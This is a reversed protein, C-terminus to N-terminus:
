NENREQAAIKIQLKLLPSLQNFIDKTVDIVAQSGDVTIVKGQRRYHDIVPVTEMKYKSFRTKISEPNDDARHILLGGCNNCIANTYDPMFVASCKSCIRRNQLREIASAEDLEIDIALYGRHNKNLMEDFGIAQDHSRPVGDFVVGKSAASNEFFDAIKLLIIGPPVLQGKTIIKKVENGEVTDELAIKRLEAGAEFIPLNLALSLAKAQTGKGSGQIGFVLIDM